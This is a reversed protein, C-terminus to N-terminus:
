TVAFWNFLNFFQDSLQGINIQIYKNAAFTTHSLFQDSATKM